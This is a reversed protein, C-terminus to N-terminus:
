FDKKKFISLIKAFFSQSQSKANAKESQKDKGANKDSRQMYNYIEQHVEYISQYREDPNIALCKMIVAEIEPPVNPNCESIPPFNFNLSGVDKKTLLNYLTAGFSYIDSRNDSKQKGYQEPSTYGPNWVFVTDITKVEDFHRAVGFNILKIDGQYTILLNSPQISRVIVPKEQSHLYNIIVCLQLSWNAIEDFSYPNPRNKLLDELNDGEIYETLLYYSDAGSFFDIFKPIGAHSLESLIQSEKKALELRTNKGTGKLRTKIERIKILDVVGHKDKAIYLAGESTEELKKIIEYRGKLIKGEKLVEGM